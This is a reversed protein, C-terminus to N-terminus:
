EMGFFPMVKVKEPENGFLVSNNGEHIYYAYEIGYRSKVFLEFITGDKHSKLRVLPGHVQVVDFSYHYNGGLKINKSYALNAERFTKVYDGKIAM